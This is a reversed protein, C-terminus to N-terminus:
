LNIVKTANPGYVHINIDDERKDSISDILLEGLTIKRNLMYEKHEKWAKNYEYKYKQYEAQTIMVPRQRNTLEASSFDRLRSIISRIYTLNAIAENGVAEVFNWASTMGAHINAYMTYDEIDKSSTLQQVLPTIVETTTVPEKGNLTEIGTQIILRGM